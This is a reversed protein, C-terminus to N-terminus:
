TDNNVMLRIKCNVAVIKPRGRKTTKRVCYPYDLSFWASDMNGFHVFSPILENFVDNSQGMLKLTDAFLVPGTEVQIIERSSLLNIHKVPFESEIWRNDALPIKIIASFSSLKQYDIEIDRFNEILTAAEHRINIALSEFLSNKASSDKINLRRFLRFWPMTNARLDTRLITHRLKSAILQFSYAPVKVLNGSVYMNGALVGVALAFVDELKGDSAYIRIVSEVKFSGHSSGGCELKKTIWRINSRSFDIRQLPQM